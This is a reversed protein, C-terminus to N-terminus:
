ANATGTITEDYGKGVEDYCSAMFVLRYNQRGALEIKENNNIGCVNEQRIYKKWFKNM